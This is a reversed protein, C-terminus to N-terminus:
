SQFFSYEYIGGEEDNRMEIVARKEEDTYTKGHMLQNERVTSVLRGLASGLEKFPKLDFPYFLQVTFDIM